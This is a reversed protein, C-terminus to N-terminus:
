KDCLRDFNEEWQTDRSRLDGEDNYLSKKFYRQEAQIRNILQRITSLDFSARDLKICYENENIELSSTTM